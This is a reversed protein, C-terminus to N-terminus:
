PGVEHGGGPAIPLTYGSPLTYQELILKRLLGNIFDELGPLFSIDGGQVIMGYSLKPQELFSVQIGPVHQMALHESYVLWSCLM